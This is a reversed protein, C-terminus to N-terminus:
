LIFLSMFFGFALASLLMIFFLSLAYKVQARVEKRRILALVVCVFVSFIIM